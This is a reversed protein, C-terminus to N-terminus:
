ALPIRVSMRLGHPVVNEAIVSGGHALAIQRTLYLGLGSGPATTAIGRVHKTFMSALEDPTVGPGNDLVVLCAHRAETKILLTIHSGPPTYTLANHVLNTLLMELAQRNGWVVIDAHAHFQEVVHKTSLPALRHHVKSVLQVLDVRQLETHTAAEREQKVSLNGDVLEILNKTARQMQAVHLTDSSTPPNLNIDLIALPTRFDHLVMQFRQRQQELADREQALAHIVQENTTRLEVEGEIRESIEDSLNRLRRKTELLYALMTRQMEDRHTRDARLRAVIAVNLLLIHGFIAVMIADRISPMESYVSSYDALLAAIQASHLLFAAFCYRASQEGRIALVATVALAFTTQALLLYRAGVAFVPFSNNLSFMLLLAATSWCLLRFACYLRPLHRDVPTIRLVEAYLGIALTASCILATNFADAPLFPKLLGLVLSYVLTTGAIYLAVLLYLRERLWIGHIASWIGILLLGGIVLGIIANDWAAHGVFDAPAHLKAYFTRLTETDLRFYVSTAGHLGSVDVPVIFTRYPIPGSAPEMSGGEYRRYGGDPAPVFAQIHNLFAPGTEIWCTPRCQPAGSPIDMRLWVPDGYGMALQKGLPHPNGDIAAPLDDGATDILNLVAHNAASTEARCPPTVTLLLLGFVCIFLRSAAALM